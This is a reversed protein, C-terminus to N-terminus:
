PPMEMEMIWAAHGMELRWRMEMRLERWGGGGCVDGDGHVGDGGMREDAWMGMWGDMEGDGMGM